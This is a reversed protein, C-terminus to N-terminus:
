QKVALKCLEETQNKVFRLAWRDRQVALKCLEETQEKVYQLAYGDQQVALKCIEETQNKVYCLALGDQEVALKCLEETQEKVYKLARGEQKVALKCIEETQQRVFQLAWGNQKMALKCLQINQLFLESLPLINTLIIMNAKFKNEEIYVLAEDPIIVYSFKIGYHLYMHIKDLDTFYLGGASCMGTPNFKVSDINLGEKYEFGHHTLNNALIKVFKFGKYSKNFEKGTIINAM